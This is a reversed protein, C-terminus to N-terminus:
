GRRNKSARGRIQESRLAPYWFGWLFEGDINSATAGPISLPQNTSMPLRTGIIYRVGASAIDLPTSLHHAM